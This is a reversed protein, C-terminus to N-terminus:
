NLDLEIDIVNKKNCDFTGVKKPYTRVFKGDKIQTMVICPSPTKEAVNTAGIIGDADFATEQKLADFLTQRSLTGGDAVAKEAADQFLLAAVLASVSNFDVNEIGGAAAVLKKLTPNSKYESYFPITSLLIQTDDVDAGGQEILLNDYCAQNCAWVKVSNAGQLTAEKRLDAMKNGGNKAFTSNNSKIVQVIPTMASQPDRSFIDYFGQGDKKIGLDVGAQATPTVANKTAKLDAPVTWIGHLDKYKKMYYLYDGQQVTYTQPTQDKTECYAGLSTTVFTVPSCSQTTDLANGPMDPLGIAAGAKDKCAVMDDVNNLFLAQGGVMAFDDACAKIIANRTENPNLKSDIHDIVIKRGAVGGAKNVVEAWAKMADVSKQFLGPQIPTDVDAIVALRIETDTIGVDDAKPKSGQAGAGVASVGLLAIVVTLVVALLRSFRLTGGPHAAVRECLEFPRYLIDLEPAAPM